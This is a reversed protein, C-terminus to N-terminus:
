VRAPSRGLRPRPWTCLSRAQRLGREFGPKGFCSVTGASRCGAGHWRRVAGQIAYGYRKLFMTSIMSDIFKHGKKKNKNKNKDEGNLVPLLRRKWDRTEQLYCKPQITKVVVIFHHSSILMNANLKPPIKKKKLITTLLPPEPDLLTVDQINPLYHLPLSCLVCVRGCACGPLRAARRGGQQCRASGNLNRASPFHWRNNQFGM